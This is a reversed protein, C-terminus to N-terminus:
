HETYLALPTAWLSSGVTMEDMTLIFTKMKAAKLPTKLKWNKLKVQIYRRQQLDRAPGGWIGTIRVRTLILGLAVAHVLVEVARTGFAVLSLGTFLELLAALGARTLTVWTSRFSSVTNFLRIPWLFTMFKLKKKRATMSLQVTAIAVFSEAPTRCMGELTQPGRPRQMLWGAPFKVQTHSGPNLPM